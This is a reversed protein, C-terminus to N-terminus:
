LRHCWSPTSSKPLAAGGLCLHLCLYKEFFVPPKCVDSPFWTLDMPFVTEGPTSSRCPTLTIATRSKGPQGSYQMTPACQSPKRGKTVHNHRMESLKVDDPQYQWVSSSISSSMPETSICCTIRRWRRSSFEGGGRWCAVMKMWKRPNPTSRICRPSRPADTPDSDSSFGRAVLLVEILGHVNQISSHSSRKLKQQDLSRGGRDLRVSRRPKSLNIVVERENWCTSINLVPYFM